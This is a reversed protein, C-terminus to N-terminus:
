KGSFIYWGQYGQLQQLPWEPPPPTTDLYVLSILGKGIALALAAWSGSGKGCFCDSPRESPMLGTPCPKGPFSLWIGKKEQITEVVRISRLAFASPGTGFEGTSVKYTQLRSRPTMQRAIEDIGNACGTIINATTAKVLRQIVREAYNKLNPNPSRTGSIGIQKHTELLEKM